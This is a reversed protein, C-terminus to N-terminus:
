LPTRGGGTKSQPQNQSKWGVTCPRAFQCKGRTFDAGGQKGKCSGIKVARHLEATNVMGSIPIGDAHQVTETTSEFMLKAILAKEQNKKKVQEVPKPAKKKTADQNLQQPISTEAM